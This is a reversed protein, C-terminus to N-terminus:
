KDRKTTYMDTYLLEYRKIRHLLEPSKLGDSQAKLDQEYEQTEKHSPTLVASRGTYYGQPLNDKDIM